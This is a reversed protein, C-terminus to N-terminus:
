NLKLRTKMRTNFINIKKLIRTTLVEKDNQVTLIYIGSEYNSLDITVNQQIETNEIITKGGIDSISLKQINSNTNEFYIKGKTLNPYIYIRQKSVENTGTLVSLM